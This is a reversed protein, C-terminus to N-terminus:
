GIGSSWPDDFLRLSESVSDPKGYWMRSADPKDLSGSHVKRAEREPLLFRVGNRVVKHMEDDLPLRCEADGEGVHLRVKTEEETYTGEQVVEAHFCGRSILRFRGNPSMALIWFSTSGTELVYVGAVPGFAQSASAAGEKSLDGPPSCVLALCLAIVVGKLCAAAM